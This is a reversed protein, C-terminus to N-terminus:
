VRLEDAATECIVKDKKKQLCAFHFRGLPIIEEGEGLIENILEPNETLHKVVLDRINLIESINHQFDELMNEVVNPIDYEVRAYVLNKGQVPLSAWLTPASQELIDNVIAKVVQRLRRDIAENVKAPELRAIIEEVSLLKDLVLEVEIEAMQIRKSPIIGQWGFIPKIGVFEIPYFMMKVALYNTGYGVLASILPILLLIITDINWEM